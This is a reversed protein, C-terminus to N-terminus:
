KEKVWEKFRKFCDDCLDFVEGDFDKYSSRAKFIIEDAFKADDSNIPPRGAGLYPGYDRVYDRHVLQTRSSISGIGLFGILPRKEYGSDSIEKGCKDCYIVPCEKKEYHTRSKIM